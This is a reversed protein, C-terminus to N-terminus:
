PTFKNIKLSFFKNMIELDTLKQARKEVARKKLIDSIHVLASLFVFWYKPQTILMKILTFIHSQILSQETINKWIFMLQNRQAISAIKDKSFNQSIVGKDKYHEVIADKVWFNIFGRKVARYGLDLDEEYFPDYNIDFGGLENWVSKRFIGSGGSVWLTEHTEIEKRSMYHWFYGDQWKAWSWNGGTNFGISLVRPDEFYKLVKKICDKEPIADTNLLFVLDGLAEKVGLNVTSSFGENKAKEILKIQPYYQKIFEVSEDNSADDVVIVEDVNEVKLVEPLNKELKEKGNWNPIVISIKFM